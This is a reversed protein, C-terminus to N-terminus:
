RCWSRFPYLDITHAEVEQRSLKKPQPRARMGGFEGLENANEEDDTDDHAGINELINRRVEPGVPRFGAAQFFPM